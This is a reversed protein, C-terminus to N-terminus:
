AGQSEAEHGHLLLGHEGLIVVEAPGMADSMEDQTGIQALLEEEPDSEEPVVAQAEVPEEKKGKQQEQHVM